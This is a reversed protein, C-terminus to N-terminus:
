VEARALSIEKFDDGMFEFKKRFLYALNDNATAFFIQRDSNISLERLYDLFSLSNLDDVYSVPDDLLILNPGNKLKENLTLFISLALASRQGTSIEFISVKTDDLKTLKIQENIFSVDKFERPSHIAKFVEVIRKQNEDIFEKIFSQKSYDKFINELVSIATSAKKLKPKIEKLEEELKSKRVNSKELTKLNSEKKLKLDFYKESLVSVTDIVTEIESVDSSNSIKIQDKLEQFQSIANEVSKIRKRLDIYKDLGVSELSETISISDDEVKERKTELSTELASKKDNLSSILDKTEKLNNPASEVKDKLKKVTSNFDAQTLNSADFSAKIQNAKELKIVEDDLGNIGQELRKLLKQNPLTEYAKDEYFQNLAREFNQLEKQLSILKKIEKECVSIDDLLNKHRVGKGISSRIDLIRKTLEDNAFSSNCLPCEEANQHLHLYEKGKAKIEGIIQELKDLQQTAEELEYKNNDLQKQFRIISSSLNRKSEIFTGSISLLKKKNLTALISKITRGKDVSTKLSSILEDIGNLQDLNPHEHYTKLREVEQIVMGIHKLERTQNKIEENQTEIRSKAKDINLKLKELNDLEKKVSGFSIRALWYLGSRLNLITSKIKAIESRVSGSNSFYDKGWALPRSAKLLEELIEDPSVDIKSIEKLQSNLSRIEDSLADKRFSLKREEVSFDSQYKNIRDELENVETGLAIDDFADKIDKPDSSSLRFSSDSDFFNYRNFRKFLAAKQNKSTITNYWFKDLGKYRTQNDYYPKFELSKAMETFQASIKIEKLKNDNEEDNSNRMSNGCIVLEIAELLSTKGHGNPGTILNVKQFTGNGNLMPYKRYKELNISKLHSTKLAPGLKTSGTDRFDSGKFPLGNLFDQISKNRPQEGVIFDLKNKELQENWVSSLNKTLEDTSESKFRDRISLWDHFEGETMILKRAYLPNSEVEKKLSLHSEIQGKKSIFAYYYNWQISGLSKYYDDKLSAEINEIFDEKLWNESQDVYVIQFPDESKERTRICKINKNELPLVSSFFQKLYKENILSSM